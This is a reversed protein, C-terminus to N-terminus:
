ICFSRQDYQILTGRENTAEDIDSLRRIFEHYLDRGSNM